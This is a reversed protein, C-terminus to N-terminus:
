ATPTRPKLAPLEEFGEARPVSSIARLLADPPPVLRRARLDLWGGTLVIRAVKKGGPRWFEHALRFRSGDRKGRTFEVGVFRARLVKARARLAVDRSSAM